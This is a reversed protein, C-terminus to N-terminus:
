SDNVVEGLTKGVDKGTVCVLGLAIRCGPEHQVWAPSIRVPTCTCDPPPTYHPDPEGTM